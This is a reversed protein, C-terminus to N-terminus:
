GWVCFCGRRRSPQMADKIGAIDQKRQTIGRVVDCAIIFCLTPPSDQLTLVIQFIVYGLGSGLNAAGADTIM